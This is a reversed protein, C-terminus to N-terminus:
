LMRNYNNGPLFYLGLIKSCNYNEILCRCFPVNNFLAGYHLIAYQDSENLKELIKTMQPKNYAHQSRITNLREEITEKTYGRSAELKEAIDEVEKSTYYRGAQIKLMNRFKKRSYGIKIGNFM